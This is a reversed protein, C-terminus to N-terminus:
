ADTIEKLGHIPCDKHFRLIPTWRVKGDKPSQRLELFDIRKDAPVVKVQCLCDAPDFDTFSTNTEM